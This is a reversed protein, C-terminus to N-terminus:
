EEANHKYSHHMMPYGNSTFLIASHESMNSTAAISLIEHYKSEAKLMAMDENEDWVWNVNHEFEGNQNKKIEIIYNQYM